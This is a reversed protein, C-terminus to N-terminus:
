ARPAPLGRHPPPDDVRGPGAVGLQLAAFTRGYKSNDYFSDPHQNSSGKGTHAENGDPGARHRPLGVAKASSGAASVRKQSGPVMGHTRCLHQERQRLKRRIPKTATSTSTSAPGNKEPRFIFCFLISLM